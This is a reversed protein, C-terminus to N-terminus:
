EGDEHPKWTRYNVVATITEKAVGFMRGIELHTTGSEALARITYAKDISLKSRAGRRVNTTRTVVQVHNPCCCCRVRCLHDLEKGTPVPGYKTEYFYRHAVVVRGNVRIQGYGNAAIARQWIWCPTEYGCDQEKYLLASM